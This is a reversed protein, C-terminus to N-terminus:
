IREKSALGAVYSRIASPDFRLLSGVRVAPITNKEAAKYVWSRSARLYRAVDRVDWLQDADPLMIKDTM